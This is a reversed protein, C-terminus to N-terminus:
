LEFYETICDHKRTNKDYNIGVLLVEGKYSNFVEPYNKDKIQKIATDATKDWKLEIIMPIHNPSTPKPIFVLDAFGKGAPLERKIDYDNRAYYYALSITYSLANEDNYQLHSTELHADEIYKAVLEDNQNLTAELLNKSKGVSKIVENWNSNTTATIFEQMIEKNPIRAINDTNNYALYGLHILLTLIDDSNSFSTMDNKFSGTNIKCSDNAMMSLIKDKLGDYNMDIYIKLAEYNETKNWYDSFEGNRVAAVVSKPNYVAQCEKFHYGNYWEKCVDFSINKDLCLNKVEDETFGVYEALRGPNEMSFEDFMNLASHTGYKKIPLIGTMYVLAIYSKDKLWERLFDLYNEQAENDDRIVRFICDWEDIIVVFKRNTTRYVDEMVRSLSKFNYYNIDPYLEKIEAVIDTTLKEIMTAVNKNSVSLFDQVNIFVVDYINCHEKYGKVNSIAYNDFINLSDAFRDYYAALMEAAMTKGFRRPRSFCVYKQKTELVSNTYGILGTKDVYIDSKISEIFRDPGPNVYVGRQSHLKSNETM